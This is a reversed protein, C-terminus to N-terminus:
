GALKKLLAYADKLRGYTTEDETHGEEILWGKYGNVKLAAIIEAWNVCGDALNSNATKYKKVGRADDGDPVWKVNKVHVEALYAGLANLAVKPVEWGDAITNALDYLVGLATSADVQADRGKLHAVARSRLADRRNPNRSIKAM